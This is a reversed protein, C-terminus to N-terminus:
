AFGLWDSKACLIRCRWIIKSLKPWYRKMRPRSAYYNTSLQQGACGFIIPGRGPWCPAGCSPFRAVLAGVPKILIDVTDWWSKTCILHALRPWDAPTLLPTVLVLYDCALYQLERQPAAWCQDIFSWDVQEAHKAARLWPRALERRRAASLGFFAFQDRM